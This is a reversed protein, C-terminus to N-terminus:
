ERETQLVKLLCEALARQLSKIGAYAECVRCGKYNDLVVLSFPKDHLWSYKVVLPMLDNWNNCYNVPYPTDFDNVFVDSSEPNDNDPCYYIELAEAIAKNLEFETM